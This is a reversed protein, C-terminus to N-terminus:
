AAQPKRIKFSEWYMQFDTLMELHKKWADFQSRYLTGSNIQRFSPILNEHLRDLVQRSKIAKSYAIFSRFSQLEAAFPKFAAFVKGPEKRGLNSRSVFLELKNILTEAQFFFIAAIAELETNFEKLETGLKVTYPCYLSPQILSYVDTFKEM